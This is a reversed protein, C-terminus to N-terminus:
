FLELEGASAPQRQEATWDFDMPEHARVCMSAHLCLSDPAAVRFHRLHQAGLQGLYPLSRIDLIQPTSLGLGQYFRGLERNLTGSCMNGSECVADIFDQPGMAQPARRGIRALHAKMPASEEFHLATVIRFTYSAISLVVMRSGAGCGIREVPRIDSGPDGGAIGHRLGLVMMRDLSAKARASIVPAQSM